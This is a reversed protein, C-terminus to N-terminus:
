FLDPSITNFVISSSSGIIDPNLKIASKPYGDLIQEEM